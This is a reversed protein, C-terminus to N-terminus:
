WSDTLMKHYQRGLITYNILFVSSLFSAFIKVFYFSFSFGCWQLAVYRNLVVFHRDIICLCSELVVVCVVVVVCCTSSVCYGGSCLGCSCSVCCSGRVVVIIM